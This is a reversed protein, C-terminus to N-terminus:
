DAHKEREKLEQHVLGSLANWLQCVNIIQKAGVGPLSLAVVAWILSINEGGDVGPLNVNLYQLFNVKITLWRPQPWHLLYLALYLVECSVCCFGMFWRYQYYTRVLFSKSRVDKHSTNGTTLTYYMQSWHSFIDLMLLGLFIVYCEQYMMCLIVLLGATSLRDTVMDLVVGFQSTQNYKRAFRGDLEDGVFGVSYSIVCSLPHKMAVAFAFLASAIRFYGILNPVYFYINDHRSLFGGTAVKM